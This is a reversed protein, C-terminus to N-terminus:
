KDFKEKVTLPPLINKKVYHLIQKMSHCVQYFSSKVVSYFYQMKLYSHSSYFIPPPNLLFTLQLKHPM